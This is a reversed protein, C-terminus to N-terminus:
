SCRNRYLVEPPQKQLLSIGRNRHMKFVPIIYKKGVFLGKKSFCLYKNILINLYEHKEVNNLGM